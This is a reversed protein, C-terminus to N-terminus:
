KILSLVANKQTEYRDKDSGELYVRLAVYCDDRIGDFAASKLLGADKVSYGYVGSELEAFVNKDCFSEFFPKEAIFICNEGNAIEAMVRAQMSAEYDQTENDGTHYRAQFVAIDTKGDGNLDGFADELEKELEGIQQSSFYTHTCFIVTTDYKETTLAQFILFAGVIVLFSVVIVTWKYHYWFNAGKESISVPRQSEKEKQRLYEENETDPLLGQRMKKIRIAELRDEDSFVGNGKKNEM